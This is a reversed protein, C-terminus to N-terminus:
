TRPKDWLVENVSVRCVWHLSYASAISVVVRFYKADSIGKRLSGSAPKYRAMKLHKRYPHVSSAVSALSKLCKFERSRTGDKVKAPHLYALFQM